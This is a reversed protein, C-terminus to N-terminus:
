AGAGTGLTTRWLVGAGSVRTPGAGAPVFAGRGPGLALDDGPRDVTLTGGTVLWTEPGAPEVTVAADIEHRVLSFEAVPTDYRHTPGAPRQVPPTSPTTDVVALLEDVDVHKSTLGGRVVNDSNAMVEVGTGELYAHLNGAGLFLGCGPDLVLHDLLLAVAVGPDGPHHAVLRAVLTVEPSADAGAAAATETLATVLAERGVDPGTLVHALADRLVDADDGPRALASRLGDLGPHELRDLLARSDALPRFGCLAEFRTLAVILEPKHHPDRYTRHPADRPIGADDERAFGARARAEDPHAQISLPEAAALIKTLFPLGGFRDAADGLLGAPDAEVAADLARGGCADLLRSPGSPHAGFWLEAEPRGSPEVGRLEAIARRDGWDYHRLVPELETVTTTSAMDAGVSGAGRCRKM